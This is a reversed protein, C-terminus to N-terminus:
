KWKKKKNRAAGGIYTEDAEVIGELLESDDNKMHFRIKMSINWATKQNMDLHRALATSSISKKSNLIMSIAIFWKQLSIRTKHFLTGAIVSFSSGCDYCNWGDEISKNNKRGVHISGCHICCPTGAWRLEELFLFCSEETPFKSILKIIDM